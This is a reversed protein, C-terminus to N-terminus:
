LLSHNVYCVVFNLLVDRLSKFLYVQLSQLDVLVIM